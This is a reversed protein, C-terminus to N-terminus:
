KYTYDLLTRENLVFRIRITGNRISLGTSLSIDGNEKILLSKIHQISTNLSRFHSEEFVSAICIYGAVLIQVILKKM